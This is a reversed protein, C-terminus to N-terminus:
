KEVRLFQAAAQPRTRRRPHQDPDASGFRAEKADGDGIANCRIPFEYGRDYVTRLRSRLSGM